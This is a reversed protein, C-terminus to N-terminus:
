DLTVIADVGRREAEALLSHLAAGKGRNKRHALVEAGAERAIEATRDTSGDDLVWVEDFLPVLGRVVGGLTREAQCAPVVAVRRMRAVSSGKARLRCAQPSDKASEGLSSDWRARRM